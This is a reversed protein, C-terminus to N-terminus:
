GALEAPSSILNLHEEIRAIELLRAVQRGGPVVAFRLGSKECQESAMLISRLGTSDMFELESLDIVIAAPGASGTQQLQASLIPTSALDLEGRLRLIAIDGNLVVEIRLRGDVPM